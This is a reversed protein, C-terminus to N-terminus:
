RSSRPLDWDGPLLLIGRTRPSPNAKGTAVSSVIGNYVLDWLPQNRQADALRLSGITAGTSDALRLYLSRTSDVRIDTLDYVNVSRKRVQFWDAGAAIWMGSLGRYVLLGFLLIILWWWWGTVWRMGGSRLTLVGILIVAIAIGSWIATRQNGQEWELIPGAEPPSAPHRRPPRATRTTHSNRASAAARPPRPQGTDRDPRPPVSFPIPSPVTM